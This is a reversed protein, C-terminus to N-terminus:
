WLSVFFDLFSKHKQSFFEQTALRGSGGFQVVQSPSIILVILGDAFRLNVTSCFRVLGQFGPLANRCTLDGAIVVFALRGTTAPFPARFPILIGYPTFASYAPCLFVSSCDGACSLSKTPCSDPSNVWSLNLPKHCLTDQSQSMVLCFVLAKVDWHRLAIPRLM